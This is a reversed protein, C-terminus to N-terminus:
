SHGYAGGWRWTGPSGAVGAARPDRLISFGLGYGWGPSGEMDLGAIHDRGIEAALEPTVLPKGGLLLADLLRLVEDATGVMGAGGSPFAEPDLARRPDMLLGAMAPFTPVIDPERMRRPRPLDDAYAATLRAPESVRFGTQTLGLPETVLARMAEPLALKTAAAIVAGAVDFSLSYAFRTGPAFLLPVGALRRMNEALTLESREMGDSVGARHLPGDAPEFFGYGLGATHTLLHRLTIIAPQDEFRPTFDPLWTIIPRDLDLGGKAILAMAAAAVFLKSVSALRFITHERMPTGAERDAMGAARAYATEGDRSVLVVTGVIRDAAIAGDIVADLRARLGAGTDSSADLM